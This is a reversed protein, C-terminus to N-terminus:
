WVGRFDMRPSLSHCIHTHERGEKRVSPVNRNRQYCTQEGAVSKLTGNTGPPWRSPPKMIPFTSRWCGSAQLMYHHWRDRLQPAAKTGPKPFSTRTLQSASVPAWPGMFSHRQEAMDSKNRGQPSYGVLRRRGHSKGLLPVPTPQWKRRGGLNGLLLSVVIMVVEVAMVATYVELHKWKLHKTIAPFCDVRNRCPPTASDRQM